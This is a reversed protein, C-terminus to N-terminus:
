SSKIPQLHKWAQEEEALNWESLSQECALVHSESETRDMITVVARYEADLSIPEVLRVEGSKGIVAELTRTM